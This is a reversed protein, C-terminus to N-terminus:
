TANNSHSSIQHKQLRGLNLFQLGCVNCLHKPTLKITAATGDDCCSVEEVSSTSHNSDDNQNIITGSDKSKVQDYTIDKTHEYTEVGLCTHTSIAEETMLIKNCVRCPFILSKENIKVPDVHAYKDCIRKVDSESLPLPQKPQKKCKPKPKEYPTKRINKVTGASSSQCSNMSDQSSSISDKTKEIFNHESPLPTIVIGSCTEVPKSSYVVSGTKSDHGRSASSSSPQVATNTSQQITRQQGDLTPLSPRQIPSITVGLTSKSTLAPIQTASRMNSTGPRFSQNSPLITHQPTTQSSPQVRGVPVRRQQQKVPARAPPISSKPTDGQDEDDSLTLVEVVPNNVEFPFALPGGMYTVTPSVSKPLTSSGGNLISSSMWPLAKKLKTQTQICTLKFEFFEKVKAVCRHCVVKSLSDNRLIVVDPVVAEIKALCEPTTNFINILIGSQGGCLRCVDKCQM